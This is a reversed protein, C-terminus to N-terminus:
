AAGFASLQEALKVRARSWRRKVTDEHVGLIEGAEPQSYGQFFLLEVAEREDVPLHGVAELLDLALTRREENFDDDAIAPGPAGGESGADLSQKQPRSEKGRGEMKRIRDLLVRRIELAALGVFQRVSTPKVEDLAAHLRLILESLIGATEEEACVRM